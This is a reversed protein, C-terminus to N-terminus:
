RTVRNKMRGLRLLSDIEPAASCSTGISNKAFPDAGADILVRITELRKMEAADLNGFPAECARLLATNGREDRQDVKTGFHLLTKAVAAHGAEAAAMLATRGSYGITHVDLLQRRALYRLFRIQDKESGAGTVLQFLLGEQTGPTKYSLDADRDMLLQLIETNATHAALFVNPSEPDGSLNKLAPAILRAIDAREHRITEAFLRALEDDKLAETNRGERFFAADGRWLAAHADTYATGRNFELFVPFGTIGMAVAFYPIVLLKHLSLLQSLRTHVFPLLCLLLTLALCLLIIGGHVDAPAETGEIAIHCGFVGNLLTALGTVAVAFAIVLGLAVLLKKM